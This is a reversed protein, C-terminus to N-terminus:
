HLVHSEFEQLMDGWPEADTLFLVATEDSSYVTAVEACEESNYDFFATSSTVDAVHAVYDRFTSM